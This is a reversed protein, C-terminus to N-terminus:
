FSWHNLIKKFETLEQKKASQDLLAVVKDIVLKLRQSMVEALNYVIKLAGVDNSKVLEAFRVARIGLLRADAAVKVTVLRQFQAGFLSMDGIVEGQGLRALSQEEGSPDRKTVELSGELVFFLCDADDGERFLAEGKKVSIEEGIDLIAAGEKTTLGRCFPTDVLQQLLTPDAM